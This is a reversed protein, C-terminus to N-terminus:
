AEGGPLLHWTGSWKCRPGLCAFILGCGRSHQLVALHNLGEFGRRRAVQYYDTMVQPDGNRIQVEPEAPAASGAALMDVSALGTDLQQEVNSGAGAQGFLLALAQQHPELRVEVVVAYQVDNRRLGAALHLVPGLANGTELRQEATRQSSAFSPDRRRGRDGGTFPAKGGFTSSGAQLVRPTVVPAPVIVSSLGVAV